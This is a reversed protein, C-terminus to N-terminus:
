YLNLWYKQLTTLFDNFSLAELTAEECTVWDWVLPDHFCGLIKSVKQNDEVGGKTNMFFSELM